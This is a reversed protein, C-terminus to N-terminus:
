AKSSKVKSVSAKVAKPVAAKESGNKKEFSSSLWWTNCFCWWFFCSSPLFLTCWIIVRFDFWVVSLFIDFCYFSYWTCIVFVAFLCRFWSSDESTRITMKISNHVSCDLLFRVVLGFSCKLALTGIVIKRQLCPLLFFLKSCFANDHCYSEVGGNMKRLIITAVM